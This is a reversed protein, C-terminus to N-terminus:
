AYWGGANPVYRLRLAAQRWPRAYVTLVHATPVRVLWPRVTLVAYRPVGPPVADVHEGKLAVCPEPAARTRAQHRSNSGRCRVELEVLFIPVPQRVPADVKAEVRLGSRLLRVNEGHHLRTAKHGGAGGGGGSASRGGGGGTIKVASPVACRVGCCVM